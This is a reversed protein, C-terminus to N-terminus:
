WGFPAIAFETPPWAQLVSYVRSDPGYAKKGSQKIYISM